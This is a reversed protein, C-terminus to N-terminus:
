GTGAPPGPGAAYRFVEVDAPRLLADAGRRFGPRRVWAICGDQGPDDTPVAGVGAHLRADFREGAGPAFPTVAAATDLVQLLQRRLMGAVTKDDGAALSDMQDVLRVLGALLPTLAQALEGSRSKTLEAHLRDVLGADHSRLRALESVREDLRQVSESVASLGTLVTALPDTRREARARAGALRGGAAASRGVLTAQWARRGRVGTAGGCIGWALGPARLGSPAGRGADPM